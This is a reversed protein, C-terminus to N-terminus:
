LGQLYWISSEKTFILSLLVNPIHCVHIQLQLYKKAINKMEKIHSEHNKCFIVYFSNNYENIIIYEQFLYLIMERTRLIFNLMLTSIMHQYYVQYCTNINSENLGSLIHRLCKSTDWKYMSLPFPLRNWYEKRSFEVLLPAQHAVTWPTLQARSPPPLMQVYKWKLLFSM